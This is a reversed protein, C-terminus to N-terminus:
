FPVMFVSGKPVLGVEGDDFRDAFPVDAMNYLENIENPVEFEEDYLEVLRNVRTKIDDEEAATPERQWHRLGSRAIQFKQM